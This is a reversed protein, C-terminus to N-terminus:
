LKGYTKQNKNNKGTYMTGQPRTCERPEIFPVNLHVWDGTNRKYIICFAAFNCLNNSM